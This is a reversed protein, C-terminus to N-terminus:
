GATEQAAGFLVQAGFVMAGVPSEAPNRPAPIRPQLVGPVAAGPDPLYPPRASSGRHASSGLPVCGMHHDTRLQLKEKYDEIVKNIRAELEQLHCPRLRASPHRPRAAAVALPAALPPAASSGGTHMGGM